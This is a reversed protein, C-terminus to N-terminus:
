DRDRSSALFECFTRTRCYPNSDGLTLSRREQEQYHIAVTGQEPDAEVPYCHPFYLHVFLVYGCTMWHMMTTGNSGTLVVLEEPSSSTSSSPPVMEV